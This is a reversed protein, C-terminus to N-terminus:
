LAIDWEGLAIPDMWRCFLVTRVFGVARQAVVLGLMLLVGQALTETHHSDTAAPADTAAPSLEPELLANSM